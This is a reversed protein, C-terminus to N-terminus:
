NSQLHQNSLRVIDGLITFDKPAASATDLCCCNIKLSLRSLRRDEKGLIPVLLPIPVSIVGQLRLCVSRKISQASRSCLCM